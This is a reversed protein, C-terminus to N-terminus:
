SAVFYANEENNSKVDIGKLWCENQWELTSITTGILNRYLLNYNYDCSVSRAKCLRTRRQLTINM